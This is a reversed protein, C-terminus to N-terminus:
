ESIIDAAETFVEIYRIALETLEECSANGLGFVEGILRLFRKENESCMGDAYSMVCCEFFFLKKMQTPCFTFEGKEVMNKLIKTAIDFYIVERVGESLHEFFESSPLVPKVEESFFDTILKGYRSWNVSEGALFTTILRGLMEQECYDIAEVALNSIKKFSESAKHASGKGPDRSSLATLFCLKTLTACANPDTLQHIFM